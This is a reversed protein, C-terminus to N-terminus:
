GRSGPRSTRSGPISFIRGQDGGTRHGVPRCRGFAETSARGENARRGYASLVAWHVDLQVGRAIWGLITAGAGIEIDDSHAGICLVSLRETSGVLEVLKM